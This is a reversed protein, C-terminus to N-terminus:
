RSGKKAMAVSKRPAAAKTEAKAVVPAAKALPAAKTEVKAAAPAAKALPTSKTEAKAAVPAAKMEAKAEFLSRTEAKAVPVPKTEAKVEAVPKTDAKAEPAPKAAANAALQILQDLKADMDDLLLEINTLRDALSIFDAQSPMHLQELASLMAKKQADRFPASATLYTELMTGNSKAYAESNVAEGMAKAWAGMYGDRLDRWQELPDAAKVSESQADSM